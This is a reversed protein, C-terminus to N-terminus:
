IGLPTMKVKKFVVGLRYLRLIVLGSGGIKRRYVLDNSTVTTYENNKGLKNFTHIVVRVLQPFRNLTTYIKKAYDSISILFIHSTHFIFVNSCSTCDFRLSAVSAATPNITENPKKAVMNMM